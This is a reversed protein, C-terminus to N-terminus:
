PAGEVGAASEAQEDEAHLVVDYDTVASREARPAGEVGPASEAQEDDAHLAVDYDAVTSREARPAGDGDGGGPPNTGDRGAGEAAEGGAPAAAGAADEEQGGDRHNLLRQVLERKSGYQPLKKDKLIQKLERVLMSELAEEYFDEEKKEASLEGAGETTEAGDGAGGAGEATRSAAEREGSAAAGAAGAESNFLTIMAHELVDELNEELMARGGTTLQVMFIVVGNKQDKKPVHIRRTGGGGRHARHNQSQAPHNGFRPAKGDQLVDGEPSVVETQFISDFVNFFRTLSFFMQKCASLADTGEIERMKLARGILRGSCWGSSDAYEDVIDAVMVLLQRTYAEYVTVDRPFNVNVGRSAFNKAAISGDYAPAAAAAAPSPSEDHHLHMPSIDDGAPAGRQPGEGRARGTRVVTGVKRRPGRSAPSRVRSRPPGGGSAVPTGERGENIPLNGDLENMSHADDGSNRKPVVLEDLFAEFMVPKFDQCHLDKNLYWRADLRGGAIGLAVRKGAQRIRKLAPVFDRDASVLVVLDCHDQLAHYLMDTALSIDVCKEQKNTNESVHVEFNTREKMHTFMTARASNRPTQRSMSTYVVTRTVDVLRQVGQTAIMQEELSKAILQPLKGWHVERSIMWLPGYVKETLSQEQGYFDYFLNSGDVFVMARIPTGTTRVVAAPPVEGDNM